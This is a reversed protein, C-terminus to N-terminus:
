CGVEMAKKQLDDIRQSIPVGQKALIEAAWSKEKDFNSGLAYMLNVYRYIDYEQEISYLDSRELAYDITERVGKEGQEAAEQPWFEFVQQYLDNKLRLVQAASLADLQESRIVLM